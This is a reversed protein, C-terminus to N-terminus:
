QLFSLSSRNSSTNMVYQVPFKVNTDIKVRSDCLYGYSSHHYKFRKLHIILIPPLRWISMRKEAQMHEKCHPCYWKDDPGLVEPEIFMQLCQQLTIDQDLLFRFNFPSKRQCPSMGCSIDLVSSDEILGTIGHRNKSPVVRLPAELKNDTFWDISFMSYKRLIQDSDEGLNVFLIEDKERLSHEEGPEVIPQINTQTNNGSQPMLRFLPQHIFIDDLMDFEEISHDSNSPSLTDHHNNNKLM